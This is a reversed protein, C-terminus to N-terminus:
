RINKQKLKINKPFKDNIEMLSIFCSALDDMIEVVGVHSLFLENIFGM